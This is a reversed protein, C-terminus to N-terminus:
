QKVKVTQGLEFSGKSTIVQDGDALGSLIVTYDDAEAGTEVVRVDVTNDKTLVYVFAGNDDHRVASTPVCLLPVRIPADLALTYFEGPKIINQENNFTAKVLVSPVSDPQTTDVYTLQGPIEKDDIKLTATVGNLNSGIAMAISRPISMSAVVPTSQQILMFPRGAMAIKHDENYITTVTGAIPATIQASNIQTQVTAIAASIGATDGGGGGANVVTTTAHSRAVISNYEKQTIIGANRLEAARAVQTSSVSPSVTQTTRVPESQGVVQLQAMLSSLQQQLTSTDLLAVIQGAQVTDGAKVMYQAVQGSVTPTITAQNLATVNADASIHLPVTRTSASSVEVTSTGCGAIGLVVLFLAMVSLIVRGVYNMTESGLSKDYQIKDIVLQLM